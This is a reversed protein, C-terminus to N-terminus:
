RLPFTPDGDALTAALCEQAESKVDHVHPCLWEVPERYACLATRWGDPTEVVEHSMAIIYNSLAHAYRLRACGLCSMRGLRMEVAPLELHCLSCEGM